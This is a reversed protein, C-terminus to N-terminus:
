IWIRKLIQIKGKYSMYIKFWKHCKKRIKDWIVFDYTKHCESAFKRIKWNWFMLSIKVEMIQYELNKRRIVNLGFNGSREIEFNNM